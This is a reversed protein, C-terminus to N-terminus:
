YLWFFLVESKLFSAELWHCSKKYQWGRSKVISIKLGTGSVESFLIFLFHIDIKSACYPREKAHEFKCTCKLWKLEKQLAAQSGGRPRTPVMGASTSHHWQSTKRTLIDNEIGKNQYPISNAPSRAIVIYWSTKLRSKLGSLVFISVEEM